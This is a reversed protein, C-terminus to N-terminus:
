FCLYADGTRLTNFLILIFQLPTSVSVLNLASTPDIHLLLGMVTAISLSIGM